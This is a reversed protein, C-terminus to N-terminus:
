CCVKSHTWASTDAATLEFLLEAVCFLGGAERRHGLPAKRALTGTVTKMARSSGSSHRV